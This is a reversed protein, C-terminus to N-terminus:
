AGPRLQLAYLWARDRTPRPRLAARRGLRSLARRRRLARLLRGRSADLRMHDFYGGVDAKAIKLHRLVAAVDDGNRTHTMPTARLATRGHGELDIGIVQRKRALPGIVQTMSSVDAARSMPM